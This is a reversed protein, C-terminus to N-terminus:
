PRLILPNPDPPNPNGPINRLVSDIDIVHELSTLKKTQSVKDLKVEYEDSIGTNVFM